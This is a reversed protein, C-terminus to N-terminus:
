VAPAVFDPHDEPVDLASARATAIPREADHRTLLVEIEWRRGEHSVVHSEVDLWLGVPCPSRYAIELGATVARTGMSTLLTGVAEDLVLAVVGGHAIRAWGQHRDQLRVRGRVSTPGTSHYVTDPAGTSPACGACLPHTALPADAPTAHPSM